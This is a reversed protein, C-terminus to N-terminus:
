HMHEVHPHDEPFFSTQGDAHVYLPAALEERQEETTAIWVVANRGSTTKRKGSARVMDAAALESRRPRQTNGAMGLAHQCEEDTAGLEGQERVFELIQARLAASKTRIAARAEASNDRTTMIEGGKQGGQGERPGQAM